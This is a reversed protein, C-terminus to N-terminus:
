KKFQIKVWVPNDDERMNEAIEKLKGKLKGEELLEKLMDAGLLMSESNKFLWRFKIDTDPIDTNTLKCEFIANTSREIVIRQNTFKPHADTGKKTIKGFIYQPIIKEVQLFVLPEDMKLIEPTRVVLPILKKDKSYEFITDKGVESLILSNGKPVFPTMRVSTISISNGKTKTITTEIKKPLLIPLEELETGDKKSLFFYPRIEKKVSDSKNEFGGSFSFNSFEGNKYCLLSNEDFNIIDADLLSYKKPIPITRKYNGAKDYVQLQYKMIYDLVIIEETPKDYYLGWINQYEKGSQGKHKFKQLVKGQGNFLFITGEKKNGVLISDPSIVCLRYNNDILVDDRTELPIYDVDAIDQLKIEKKPYNKTVDVVPIGNKSQTETKTCSVALLIGLGLLYYNLKKM